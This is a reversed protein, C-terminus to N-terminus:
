VAALRLFEDDDADTDEWQSHEVLIASEDPFEVREDQPEELPVAATMLLGAAIVTEFM